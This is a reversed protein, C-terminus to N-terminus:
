SYSPKRREWHSMPRPPLEFGTKGWIWHQYLEHLSWVTGDFVDEPTANKYGTAWNEASAVVDEPDYNTFEILADFSRWYLKHMTFAYTKGQESRLERTELELLHETETETLFEM